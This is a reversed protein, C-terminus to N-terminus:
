IIMWFTIKKYIISLIDKGCYDFTRGSQYQRLNNAKYFLIFIFSEVFLACSLDSNPIALWLKISSM